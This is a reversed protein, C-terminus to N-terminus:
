HTPHRYDTFSLISAGSRLLLHNLDTNISPCNEVRLLCNGAFVEILLSVSGEAHPERASADFGAHSDVFSVLDAVVRHGIRDANVVQARGDQMCTLTIPISFNWKEM